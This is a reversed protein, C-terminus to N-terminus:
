GPQLPIRMYKPRSAFPTISSTSQPASWFSFSINFTIISIDIGQGGEHPVGLSKFLYCRYIKSIKFYLEKKEAKIGAIMPITLYLSFWFANLTKPTKQTTVTINSHRADKKPVYKLMLLTKM